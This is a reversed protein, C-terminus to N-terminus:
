EGFLEGGFKEQLENDLRDSTVLVVGVATMLESEDLDDGVIAYRFYVWGTKGNEDPNVVIGGLRFWQGETAAWEYLERTLPVDTLLPCKVDIIAGDDGFGERIRIFTVASDKRVVFDNDRDVEVRGFNDTLMRQVKSRVQDVVSVKGGIDNSYNLV